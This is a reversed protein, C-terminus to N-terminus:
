RLLQVGGSMLSTSGDTYEVKAQWAYVGAPAPQQRFVGDWGASPKDPHFHEREFVLGGWRNFVQWNLVQKVSGPRAYIRFLDNNGDGNPSFAGPVYVRHKKSVLIRLGAVATCGNANTLEARYATEALPRVVFERCTDCPVEGGTWKIGAAPYGSILRINVADGFEIVAYADPGSVPVAAGDALVQFTIELGQPHPVVIGFQAECGSSDLISLQYNGPALSGFWAERQYPRGDLRYQWDGATPDEIFLAGNADGPCLPTEVEWQAELADPEDISAEAAAICGFADTVTVIYHGAPLGNLFSTSRDANWLYRYPPVGGSVNARASGDHEGYCSVATSHLDVSLVPPEGVRTSSAWVCGRDDTVTLQYGGSPLGHMEASAAGNSWLFSYPPTGGQPHPVVAGTSDGHCLNDEVSLAVALPAPQEVVVEILQLCENGDTVTVIYNGAALGSTCEGSQGDPWSVTYGGGYVTEAEICISGDNSGFCSLPSVGASFVSALERITVSTDASCGNADTVALLYNGAPLGQQQATTDFVSGWSGQYPPVGGFAQITIAGGSSSECPTDDAQVAMELRPPEELAVSGVSSCGNADSVTVAYMGPPLNEAQETTMGNNWEYVYGGSRLPVGGSVAARAWGDASGYCSLGYGNFDSGQVALSLEPPENLRLSDAVTCANADTVTVSYLGANLGTHAAVPALGENWSYSYPFAGGLPAATIEGDSAGRCSVSFGSFDTVASLSAGLRVSTVALTDWVVCGPPRTVAVPVNETYTQGPELGTLLYVPNADAPAGVNPSQWFYGYGPNPAGGLTIPAGYCATVTETALALPPAPVFVEETACLCPNSEPRIALLYGECTYDAPVELSYLLPLISGSVLGSVDLLTDGLRSDEGAEFSGSGNTDHYIELALTEARAAEATNTIEATFAVTEGGQGNGASSVEVESLKYAPRMATLSFTEEAEFFEISCFGQPATACPIGAVNALALALTIEGCPLQGPSPVALGISFEMRQGPPAGPPMQWELVQRGGQYSVLPEALSGMNLIDQVSGNEYFVGEPLTLFIRESQSAPANSPLSFLSISVENGGPCALFGGEGSPALDVAYNNLQSPAGLLELPPAAFEVRGDSGCGNRWGAGVVFQSGAAYDCDTNFRFRIFFANGPSNENGPLGDSPIPLNDWAWANPAGPLASPGPIPIWNQNDLSFESSGPVIAMGGSPLTIFGRLSGARGDGLNRGQITCALEECLPVPGQPLGTLILDLVADKPNLLLELEVFPPRCGEDLSDPSEPYASCQFGSRVIVSGPECIEGSVVFEFNRTSYRPLQGIHAWVDNDPGFSLLSHAITSGPGGTERLELATVGDPLEFSLFANPIGLFGQYRLDFSWAATGNQEQPLPTAAQLQRQGAYYGSIFTNYHQQRTASGPAYAYKQYHYYQPTYTSQTSLCSPLVQFTFDNVTSYNVLDVAPFPGPFVLKTQGNVPAEEPDPISTSYMQVLGTATNGERDEYNVNASGPIYQWGSPLMFTVSDRLVFPRYEFPFPDENGTGHLYQYLRHILNLTDCGTDPLQVHVTSSSTPRLVELVAPRVNCSLTNGNWEFQYGARLGPVRNLGVPINETVEVSLRCVFRDNATLSWADLCGGPAFLEAIPLIMRQFYPITDTNVELGSCSQSAGTEYDFFELEATLFKLWESGAFYSVSLRLNEMGEDFVAAPVTFLVTDHPMARQLALGPAAPSVRQSLTADTWGLSLRQLSLSEAQVGGPWFPSFHCTLVFPGATECLVTLPPPSCDSLGCFMEMRYEISHLEFNNTQIPCPADPGIELPQCATEFQMNLVNSPNLSSTTIVISSDTASWSVAQGNLTPAFGSAPVLAEPLEFTLRFSAEPCDLGGSSSFTLNFNANVLTDSFYEAQFQVDGSASFQYNVPTFNRTHTRSAGCQNKFSAQLRLYRNFNNCEPICEADIAMEMALFATDGAALDDFFGDGDIDSLGGPGDPDSALTALGLLYTNGAPDPQILSDGIRFNFLSICARDAPLANFSPRLALSLAAASGPHGGEDGGNTISLMVLGNECLTAHRLQEIKTEIVPDHSSVNIMGSIAIEECFTGECGWAASIAGSSSGCSLLGVTLEICAEEGNELVQDRDGFASLGAGELTIVAPGTGPTIAVQGASTELVSAIGPAHGYTVFLERIPGFGENRVCVTQTFETNPAGDYNPPSVESFVLVPKRVNYRLGELSFSGGPYLVSITDRVLGSIGAADCGAQGSFTVALGGPPIAQALFVPAGPNSIDTEVAGAVSGSVYSVAEFFRYTFQLGHITDPSNNQFEVRYLHGGSCPTIINPPIVNNTDLLLQQAPAQGAILTIFIPILLM